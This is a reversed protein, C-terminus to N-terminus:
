ILSEDQDLLDEVGQDVQGMAIKILQLKQVLKRRKEDRTQKLNPEVPSFWRGAIFVVMMVGPTIYVDSKSFNFLPPLLIMAFGGLVIIVSVISQM